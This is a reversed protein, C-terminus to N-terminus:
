FTPPYMVCIFRARGEGVNRYKHPVAPRFHVSDEPGLLYTETGVELEVEGELVWTWEEAEWAGHAVRQDCTETGPDLEVWVAQLRLGPVHSSALQFVTNFEPARFSRRQDKRIITCVATGQEGQALLAFISTGLAQAIKRLSSLTPNAQDNEVQSLFATSLGSLRSLDQLTLGRQRRLQRLVEGLM